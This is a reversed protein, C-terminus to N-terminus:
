KINIELKAILAKYVKKKEGMLVIYVVYWM